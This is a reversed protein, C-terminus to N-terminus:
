RELPDKVTARRALRKTHRGILPKGTAIIIELAGPERVGFVATQQFIVNPQYYFKPGSHEHYLIHGSQLKHVAAFLEAASKLRHCRCTVFYGFGRNHISGIVSHRLHPLTQEDHASTIYGVSKTKRRLIPPVYGTVFRQVARKQSYSIVFGTFM